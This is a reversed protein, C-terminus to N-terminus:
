AGARAARSRDARSAGGGPRQSKAKGAPSWGNFDQQERGEYIRKNLTVDVLKGVPAEWSNGAEVEEPEGEIKLDANAAWEADFKDEEDRSYGLAAMLFQKTMSWGGESHVYCRNPTVAEGEFEPEVEGRANLKGVMELSYRCGATQKENGKDDTKAENIFPESKTIKLRYDGRDFIRISARVKSLDPTFRVTM